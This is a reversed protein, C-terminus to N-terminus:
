LGLDALTAAKSKTAKKPKPEGKTVLCTFNRPEEAGIDVKGVKNAFPGNLQFTGNPLKATTHYGLVKKASIVEAFAAKAKEPTSLDVEDVVGNCQIAFRGDETERVEYGFSELTNKHGQTNKNVSIYREM